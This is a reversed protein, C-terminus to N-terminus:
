VPAKILTVDTKLTGKAVYDNVQDLKAKVKNILETMDQASSIFGLISICFVLMVLKKM